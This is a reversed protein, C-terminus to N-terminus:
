RRQAVLFSQKGFLRWAPPFALYARVLRASRPLRSKTTFPLFRPVVTTVAFGSLRFAEVLARDDIPTIHDFFMWYDRACFRINPQLVLFRGGPRLVRHAETMVALITPRDIHEFFNSAFVVAVSGDAVGVLEDAPSVLATVGEAAADRVAPNIDVAIRTGARVANIFECAGAAVDLVTEEPEVFRDFFGACLERWLASRFAVDGAFREAYLSRMREGASTGSSTGGAAPGPAPREVTM